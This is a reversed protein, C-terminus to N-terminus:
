RQFGGGPPLLAPSVVSKFRAAMKRECSVKDPRECELVEFNSCM